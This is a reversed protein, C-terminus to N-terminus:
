AFHCSCRCCPTTASANSDTGSTSNDGRHRQEQWREFRRWEDRVAKFSKPGPGRKPKWRAAAGDPHQNRGDCNSTWQSGQDIPLEDRESVSEGQGTRGTTIGRIQDSFYFENNDTFNFNEFLSPRYPQVNNGCTFEDRGKRSQKFYQDPVPPTAIERAQTECGKRSGDLGWNRNILDFCTQDTGKFWQPPPRPPPTRHPACSRVDVPDTFHPWERAPRIHSFPHAKAEGPWIDTCANKMREQVKVIYSQDMASYRPRYSEASVFPQLSRREFHVNLADRIEDLWQYNYSCAIVTNKCQLINLMGKHLAMAADIQGYRTFTQAFRKWTDPIRPM